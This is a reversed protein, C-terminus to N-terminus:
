IMSNVCFFCECMLVRLWCTPTLFFPRYFIRWTDSKSDLFENHLIIIRFIAPLLQPISVFTKAVSVAFLDVLKLSICMNWIGLGAVIPSFHTAVQFVSHLCCKKKLVSSWILYIFDCACVVNKAYVKQTHGCNKNKNQQNRVNRTHYWNWINRMMIKLKWSTENNTTTTRAKIKANQQRLRNVADFSHLNSPLLPLLCKTRKTCAVRNYALWFCMLYIFLRNEDPM